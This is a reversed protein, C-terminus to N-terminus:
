GLAEALHSQFKSKNNALVLFDFTFFNALFRRGQKKRPELFIFFNSKFGDLIGSLSM